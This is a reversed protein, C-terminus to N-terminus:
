IRDNGLGGSLADVGGNGDIVDHSKSGTITNAGDNGVLLLGTTVLAADINLSTAGPTGGANALLVAEVGTVGARLQLTEGGTTSTFWIRDIGGGGTIVEGLPHAAASAILIIDNGSSASVSDVAGTTALVDDLSTGTITAM